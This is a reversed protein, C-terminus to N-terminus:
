AGRLLSKNTDAMIDPNPPKLIEPCPEKEEERKEKEKDNGKRNLSM